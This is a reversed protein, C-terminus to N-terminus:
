IISYVSHMRKNKNLEAPILKSWSECNGSQVYGLMGAVSDDKAYRCSIFEGLGTEGVYKSVPFGPKKLRKAEFRIEPDRGRQLRRILIDVRPREKGSKGNNQPPDDLVDYPITWKPAQSDNKFDMTHRILEGTIAPEETSTYDVSDKSMAEHGFTILRIANLCFAMRYDFNDNAKNANPTRNNAITM